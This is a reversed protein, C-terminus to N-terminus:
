VAVAKDGPFSGGTGMPYSAAHAGSGNQVRYVIGFNEELSFYPWSDCNPARPWSPSVSQSIALLLIVQGPSSFFKWGRNPSSGGIRWSTDWRQVEIKINKWRRRPRGLPRRGKPKGVFIKYVNPSYKTITLIITRYFIKIYSKVQKRALNSTGQQFITILQYSVLFSFVRVVAARGACAVRQRCSTIKNQKTFTIICV